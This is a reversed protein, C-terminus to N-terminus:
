VRNLVRVEGAIPDVEVEAGDAIDVLAGPAGIV